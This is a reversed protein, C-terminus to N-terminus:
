APAKSAMKLICKKENPQVYNKSKSKYGGQFPAPIGGVGVAKRNRLQNIAM